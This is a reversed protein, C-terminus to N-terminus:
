CAILWRQGCRGCRRVLRPLLALVPSPDPGAKGAVNADAPWALQWVAWQLPAHCFGCHQGPRAARAAQTLGSWFPTGELAKVAAALDDRQVVVSAGPWLRARLAAPLWRSWSPAEADRREIVECWLAAAEIVCAASKAQMLREFDALAVRPESAFQESQNELLRSACQYQARPVQLKVGGSAINLVHTAAAIEGVLVCAVGGAELRLRAIHAQAPYWFAALTVWGRPADPDPRDGGGEGGGSDDFGSPPSGGGACPLDLPAGFPRDCRIM